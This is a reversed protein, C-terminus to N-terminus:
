TTSVPMEIATAIIVTFTSAFEVCWGRHFNIKTISSGVTQIVRYGYTNVGLFVFFGAVAMVWVPTQPKNCDETGEQFTQLAASFAGTANGTDNSGHAFSELAAVFVLLYKFYYIADKEEANYDEEDDDMEAGSMSGYAAKGDISLNEVMGM